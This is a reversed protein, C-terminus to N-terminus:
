LIVQLKVPVITHIAQFVQMKAETLVGEQGLAGGSALRACDTLEMM